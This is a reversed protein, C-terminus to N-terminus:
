KSTMTCRDCRGCRRECGGQQEGRKHNWRGQSEWDRDGDHRNNGLSFIETIRM